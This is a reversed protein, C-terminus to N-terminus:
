SLLQNVIGKVLANGKPARIVIYNGDFEVTVSKGAKANAGTAGPATTMAKRGRKPAAAAETKAKPSPAAGKRYHAVTQPTTGYKEALAVNTVDDPANAIANKAKTSLRKGTNASKKAPM